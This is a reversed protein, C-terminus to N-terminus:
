PTRRRIRLTEDFDLHRVRLARDRPLLVFVEADRADHGACPPKGTPDCLWEWNRITGVMLLVGFLIWIVDAGERFMNEIFDNM